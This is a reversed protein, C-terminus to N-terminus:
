LSRFIPKWDKKSYINQIIAWKCKLSDTFINLHYAANIKIVEMSPWNEKPITELYKNCDSIMDKTIYTETM